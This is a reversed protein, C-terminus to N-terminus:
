RPRFFRYTAQYDVRVVAGAKDASCGDAPAKGGVTFLRQVSTTQGLVGAGTASKATLLLWPIANADPGPDKEKLEGVVKSGDSAEWTPGAYHKGIPKDERDFLDAEPGTLTWAFAGPDKGAKCEYIQVGRAHAELALAQDAPAALAAPIAPTAPGPAPAATACGSILTALIITRM